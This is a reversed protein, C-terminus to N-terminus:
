GEGEKEVKAAIKKLIVSVRRLLRERKDLRDSWELSRDLAGLLRRARSKDKSELAMEIDYCLHQKTLATEWASAEPKRRQTSNLALYLQTLTSVRIKM